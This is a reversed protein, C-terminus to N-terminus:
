DADNSPAPQPRDASASALYGDDEASLTAYWGIMMEHWTQPGWKVTDTPDPNAPNDESNDFHATCQLKTGAPLRKPEALEYTIQWNFDYKPVDLLIESTGDPYSAEYRFSKGRLHMHPSMWLMLQDSRLTVESTVEHNDARPPIVFSHNGAAGGHVRKKVTTPDAFVFGIFSQDDQEKGNPTYHLQFAIKSGAPVFMAVGPKNTTALRGPVYATLKIGRLEGDGQGARGEDTRGTRAPEPQVPPQPEAAETDNAPRSQRSAGPPIATAIIHHVVSRNGPRVEAAQIWKDETWGPDVVVRQYDVVGEAPVTFPKEMWVIQQPQAIQWGDTWKRPAPLDAPDGMPCGGDVWAYILQKEDDNLRVDNSFHGFQPNASWPPMRGESVVEKIMAGWGAVEEFDTLAFPGIQGPRHCAVCHNQLLAAVHKTYTVEGRPETKPKRGILCGMAQTTPQSVQKGALLEDLATALDRNQVKPRAYGSSSGLGYQDDIRGRYRIARGNDLVFVEPNRLAKFQDTVRQDRDKLLPFKIGQQQAFASLDSLSDQENADIGVFAVGREAYAESLEQLRAAYQRSLPCETGLFAVVVLPKDALEDLSRSRGHFDPLTFRDIRGGDDAASLATASVCVALLIAVALRPAGGHVTHVPCSM